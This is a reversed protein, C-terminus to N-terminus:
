HSPAEEAVVQYVRAGGQEFALALSLDDPPEGGAPVFVYDPAEGGFSSTQRLDWEFYQVARLDPARREAFVPLWGGGASAMLLADEAANERLWDLAAAEDHSLTQPPLDLLPRLASLLPQFTVGILVVMIATLAMLRFAGGRLRRKLPTPIHAEWIRLLALGGFWVFPLIVGHRAINPAHTLAGLPPLLRGLVGLLAADIVLLLWILMLWSLLRSDGRERLGIPIGWLALPVILGGQGRVIHALNGLDASYPSPSIPLMLPLSNILWPAIGLLAVLPFGLALGLRSKWAVGTFWDLGVLTFFGFLMILSVSLSTYVVAGMMLGGAVVDALNFRRLCRLAYLLFALMFLLALLEAFHGDLNSFHLGGCLLLAIALARGLRKDRLEAGFDYALWVLLYVVVASVSMQILPVPHELQQSLYASLAHLGPAIIVSAQPAFPALSTFSESERTTLSHLASIQGQNGLPAALHLLPIVVLMAVLAFFALDEPGPWGQDRDALREGRAEARAQATSLTGGLVVGSLLAFLLYDVVLTDWGFAETYFVAGGVILALCLASALAIRPQATRWAPSLMAGAGLLVAGFIFVVFLSM